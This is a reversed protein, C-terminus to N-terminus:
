LRICIQKSRIGSNSIETRTLCLLVSRVDTRVVSVHVSLTGPRRPAEQGPHWVKLLTEKVKNSLKFLWYAHTLIERCPCLFLITSSFGWDFEVLLVQTSRVTRENGRAPGCAATLLGTWHARSHLLSM